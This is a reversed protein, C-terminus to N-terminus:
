IVRDVLAKGEEFRKLNNLFHTALREFEEAHGGATHPTIYCNPVSWLPHDKPLPEPDTVDLYAASLRGSKLANLLATQDVTTGRGINYFIAGPKM